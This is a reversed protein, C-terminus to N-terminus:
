WIFKIPHLGFCTSDYNKRPSIRLSHKGFSFSSFQCIFADRAYPKLEQHLLIGGAEDRIYIVPIYDLGDTIKLYIDAQHPTKEKRKYLIELSEGKGIVEAFGELALTRMDGETMLEIAGRVMKLVFAKRESLEWRNFQNADCGVDVYRFWSFEQINSRFNRRIEGHPLVTTFNIYLHDFGDFCFGWSRLYFVLREIVGLTDMSDYHYIKGIYYPMGYHDANPENSEFLRIDRILKM